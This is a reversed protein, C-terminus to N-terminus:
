NLTFRSKALREYWFRGVKKVDSFRSKLHAYIRSWLKGDQTFTVGNSSWVMESDKDTLALPFTVFDESYLDIREHGKQIISACTYKGRRLADEACKRALTLDDFQGLKKSVLKKDDVEVAATTWWVWVNITMTTKRNKLPAVVGSCV